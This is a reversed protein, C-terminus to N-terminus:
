PTSLGTMRMKWRDVSLTKASTDYTISTFRPALAGTPINTTINGDAAQNIQFGIGSGNNYIRIRYWTNAQVTVGSALCTNTTGNHTEYVWQTTSNTGSSCTRSQTSFRVMIGAIANDLFSLNVGAFGIEYGVASVSSGTKVLAQMDWSTGNLGTFWNTGAYQQNVSCAHGSAPTGSQSIALVGPYYTEATRTISCSGGGYGTYTWLLQGVMGDDIRAKAMFHDDWEAISFDFPNSAPNPLTVIWGGAGSDLSADFVFQYTTNLLDTSAIQTPSQGAFIKYIKKAGLSDVNLTAGPNVITHLKVTLAMRDTYGLLPPNLSCTLASGSGSTTCSTHAAAQADVVKQVTNDVAMTEQGTSGNTTISIGTGALIASRGYVARKDMAATPADFSNSTFTHAAIQYSDSPFGSGSVADCGSCTVTAATNEAAKIRSTSPDFYWYLTGSSSTGSLTATVPSTFSFPVGGIRLVCPTSSSCNAGLVSTENNSGSLSLAFDGLQYAMGAGGGGGSPTAWKVGLPQSSDATLVQGNSGVPLRTWSTGFAILDGKAAGSTSLQSLAITLAPTPITSVAVDKIKLASASTPVIWHQLYTGRGLYFRVTYSTGAPLGTDNPELTVDVVGNTITITQKGAAIPVNGPTVFPTFLSIEATGNALTGDPYYLTDLIRTGAMAPGCALCLCIIVALIRM